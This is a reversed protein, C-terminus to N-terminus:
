HHVSYLPEVTNLVNSATVTPSLTGGSYLAVEGIFLNNWETHRSTVSFGGISFGDNHYPSPVKSAGLLWQLSERSHSNNRLQLFLYDKHVLM